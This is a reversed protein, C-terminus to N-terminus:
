RDGKREGTKYGRSDRSKQRSQNSKVYKNRQDNFYRIATDLVSPHVSSAIKYILACQAKPSLAKVKASLEDFDVLYSIRDLEEETVPAAEEALEKKRPWLNWM